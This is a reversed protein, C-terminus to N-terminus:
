GGFIPLFGDAFLSLMSAVGFYLLILGGMILYPASIFFVPIQPALKNIFGIAVNFILGYLLFPSGLRLMVMFTAQLTDTLTILAKQVHFVGGIPIAGYSDVLAKFVIHHFDLLFLILLGAFSLMNTLQNEASDEIIDPMPPANFGISMSIITGTFQLGMVYFRTILGIVVGVSTEVAIMEIYDIAQGSVKPYITNWLIPTLAISVAVAMFLRIQSPIRASSFGPMVLICGGIRCFAAFLALVTGTPDDMM